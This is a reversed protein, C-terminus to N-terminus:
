LGLTLSLIPSFGLLFTEVSLTVDPSICPLNGNVLIAWWLSGFHVQKRSPEVSLLSWKSLWCKVDCFMWLRDLLCTPHCWGTLGLSYTLPEFSLPIEFCCLRTRIKVWWWLVHLPSKYSIVFDGLACSNAASFCLGPCNRLPFVAVALPLPIMLPCTHLDLCVIILTKM